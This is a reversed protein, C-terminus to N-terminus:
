RDIAQGHGPTPAKGPGHRMATLLEILQQQRLLLAEVQRNRLDDMKEHLRMIELEAKLNVEYDHGAALRDRTAQRNQSMMIVPAQIAALMSLILNLFIYPYPDFGGGMRVLLVSNLVIWGVLVSGFGIIFSWSGGFAAVHDAVREGFTATSALERNVDSSVRLRRVMKELVRRDRAPLDEFKMALLQQALEHVNENMANAKRPRAPPRQAGSM